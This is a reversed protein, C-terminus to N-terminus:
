EAPAMVHQPNMNLTGGTLFRKTLRAARLVRRRVTIPNYAYRALDPALRRVVDRQLKGEQQEELSPTILASYAESDNAPNLSVSPLMDQGLELAARWGSLRQDLYFASGFHMQTRHLRRWALWEDFFGYFTAPGPKEMRRRWVEEGTMTQFCADSFCHLPSTQRGVEFCGGIVMADGPGLLRYANGPLLHTNEWDLFSGSTLQRQMAAKRRDFPELGVVHHPVGLRRAIKRALVVDTDPKGVFDFTMAEFRVGAERLAAALIRSDLGATLPLFVRGSVRRGLEAAFGCLRDSLVEAATAYSALGRIPVEHHVVQMSPLHLKQDHLLKRVGRYGTGPMPIYNIRLRHELAESIDPERFAGELVYAALGSCSSVVRRDGRSGYHLSLLAAADPSVHPWCLLAYRGAGALTSDDFNYANGLILGADGSPGGVETLNLDPHHHLKWGESGVPRSTWGPLAEFEADTLIFQRPYENLSM